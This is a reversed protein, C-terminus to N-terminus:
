FKFTTLFSIRSETQFVDIWVIQDLTLSDLDRLHNIWRSLDQYLKERTLRNRKSSVFFSVDISFSLLPLEKHSTTHNDCDIEWVLGKKKSILTCYVASNSFFNHNFITQKVYRNVRCLSALTSYRCHFDIMYRFLDSSLNIM